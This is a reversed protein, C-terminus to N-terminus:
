SANESGEGAKTNETLLKLDFIRVGPSEATLQELLARGDPGIRRSMLGPTTGMARLEARTLKRREVKM